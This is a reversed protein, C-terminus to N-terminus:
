EIKFEKSGAPKGDLLVEFKYKGTPWGGPRMVHFETRQKGAASVTQSSEEVVQGDEFTWRGVLTVTGPADTEVSAYLTDAPRFTDLVDTITKDPNLTRGLDIDTVSATATVIATTDRADDVDRDACGVALGLLLVGAGWSGLKRLM